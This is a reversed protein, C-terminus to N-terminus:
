ICSHGCPGLVMVSILLHVHFAFRLDQKCVHHREALAVTLVSAEGVHQALRTRQVHRFAREDDLRGRAERNREQLPVLRDDLVIELLDRKHVEVEHDLRRGGCEGGVRAADRDSCGRGDGCGRCGGCRGGYLSVNWRVGHCGAGRRRDGDGRGSRRRSRRGGLGERACGRGGHRDRSFLVRTGDVHRIGHRAVIEQLHQLGLLAPRRGGGGRWRGAGRGCRSDGDGRGPGLRMGRFVARGHTRLEGERIEDVAVLVLVCVVGGLAERREHVFGTLVVREEDVAPGAQALRVQQEGDLVVEGLGLRVDADFVRVGLGVDVVEDVLDGPLLRLPARDQALVM